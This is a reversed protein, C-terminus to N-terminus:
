VRKLSLIYSDVRILAYTQFASIVHAEEVM